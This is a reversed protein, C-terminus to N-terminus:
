SAWTEGALVRAITKWSVGYEAALAGRKEGRASRERIENAAVANLGRPKETLAREPDWGIELRHIATPLPVKNERAWDKLCQTRGGITFMRTRRTNRLQVDQTTWRCNDPSYGRANDIRDLSHADSPRAGMDAFFAAFSTRWAECVVIGRAGYHKFMPHTPRHCRAVMAKWASYEPTEAMGHREDSRTKM